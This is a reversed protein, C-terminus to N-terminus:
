LDGVRFANEIHEIKPSEGPPLVVSVVDFRVPVSQLRCLSIFRNAMTVQRRQKEISVFQYPQGFKDTERTKVEIFVLMNECRAVLDLEGDSFRINRHLIIYGKSVLFQEAAEEGARALQDKPKDSRSQRVSPFKVWRCRELPDSSWQSRLQQWWQSIKYWKMTPMKKKTFKTGKHNIYEVVFVCLACLNVLTFFTKSSKPIFDRLENCPQPM